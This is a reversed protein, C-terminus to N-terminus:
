WWDAMYTLFHTNNWPLPQGLYLKLTSPDDDQEWFSMSEAFKHMPHGIPLQSRNYRDEDVLLIFPAGLSYMDRRSLGNQELLVCRHFQLCIQDDVFRPDICDASEWTVGNINSCLSFRVINESQIYWDVVKRKDM